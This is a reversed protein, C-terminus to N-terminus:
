TPEKAPQVSREVQSLVFSPVNEILLRLNVAYAETNYNKKFAEQAELAREPTDYNSTVTWTGGNPDRFIVAFKDTPLNRFLM